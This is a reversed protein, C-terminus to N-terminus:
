AAPQEQDDRYDRLAEEISPRDRPDCAAWRQEDEDLDDLFQFRTRVRQEWAEVDIPQTLIGISEPAFDRERKPTLIQAPDLPKTGRRDDVVDGWVKLVWLRRVLPEDMPRGALQALDYVDRALPTRRYRALKEACAEAEAIVPLAPLAFAYARHIPSEVFGLHDPPLLLPRRAFEVSARVDPSGLENHAIDLTWHRGDGRTPQLTFTFGSVRAGDIAECVALVTDDDPAAFDLDTSFRGANGLRCKRLSTGGKFTLTADTFLGEQDLLWLLHDQAVDLLAAGYTDSRGAGHRTVLARTLSPPM